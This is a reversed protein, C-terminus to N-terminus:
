LHMLLKLAISMTKGGLEMPFSNLIGYMKFGHGDFAKLTTPSQNLNPSGISRWCSLAMVYTSAGEDIMTNHISKGCINTHIQFSLHHSLRPKFYELNFLICNSSTADMAGLTSLLTKLQGPCHQLVELTSM